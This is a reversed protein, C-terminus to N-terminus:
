GRSIYRPNVLDLVQMRFLQNTRADFEKAPADNGERSMWDELEQMKDRIARFIEDADGKFNLARTQLLVKDREQRCMRETEHVM